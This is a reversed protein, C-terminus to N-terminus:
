ENETEEPFVLALTYTADAGLTLTVTAGEDMLDVSVTPDAVSTFVVSSATWIGALDDPEIGTGDTCGAILTLAVAATTLNRLKM